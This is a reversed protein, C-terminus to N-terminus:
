LKSLLRGYDTFRDEIGDLRLDSQIPLRCLSLMAQCTLSM